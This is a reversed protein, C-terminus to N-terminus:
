QEFSGDFSFAIGGIREMNSAMIRRAEHKGLGSRKVADVMIEQITEQIGIPNADMGLEIIAKEIKHPLKRIARSALATLMQGQKDNKHGLRKFIGSTTFGAVLRGIAKAKTDLSTSTEAM